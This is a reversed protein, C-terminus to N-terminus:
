LYLGGGLDGVNPFRPGVQLYDGDGVGRGAVPRKELLEPGVFPRDVEKM